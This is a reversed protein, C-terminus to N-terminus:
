VVKKQQSKFQEYKFKADQISKQLDSFMTVSCEAFNNSKGLFGALSTRFGDFAPVLDELAEDTSTNIGREDGDMGDLLSVNRSRNTSKGQNKEQRPLVHAVEAALDKISDVVGKCPLRDIMELWADCIMYIPPGCERMSPLRMRKNRKINNQPLSVCKFLWKNIAEVYIKQAGIWKTFNSSLSNLENELHITIQRLSDSQINIKTSGPAISISIIHFQLRHCDMMMEWMRRLGEILEELQPQLEKDRIEEIKKSISDIRHISVRIRSHLDKVIARTKDTNLGQSEKQRLLKCKLDFNSRLVQCAKVEDYLKKEWAYLRDLTSAHSGSVMCFDEFLNKSVDNIDEISKGRLLNRSSASRSSSTRHWTLYKVSNQPPEQKIESPDNGCSFCSKLLSTAVSGSEKGPFVPRFHFKNAELMRPVEKGSESAKVFLQEIEQMSSFFDKPAVKDEVQRETIPNVKADNLHMFRSSTARLPSLDPSKNKKGNIFKAESEVPESSKISPDEKSVFEKGKIVNEFGPSKTESSKISSDEDVVHDKGEIVNEFSPPKTKSVRNEQPAVPSKNNADDETTVNVNKFSRVLTALSPEDFEDQSDHSEDIGHSSLKDEVDELDPIGEEARLHQIEDSHESGQDFRNREQSSFHDDIPHFLGFYDWPTESPISSTEFSSAEPVETSRPTTSPPTTSTVSMTVHMPPKEEIKKSFPIRFKMHHSNYKLVQSSPSPSAYVTTDEYQSRSPSSLSLQSVSKETFARPETTVSRSPFAFSEVRADIQAFRRLAAGIIKLEEIYAIHAAAVSCRGNLAQKIFKKRARCLQLGKDEDLRSNSAGM